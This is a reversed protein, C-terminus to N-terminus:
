NKSFSRVDSWMTRVLVVRLMPDDTFSPNTKRLCFKVNDTEGQHKIRYAEAISRLDSNLIFTGQDVKCRTNAETWCGSDDPAAMVGVCDGVAPRSEGLAKLVSTSLQSARVFDEISVNRSAM